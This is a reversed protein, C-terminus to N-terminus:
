PKIEFEASILTKGDAVMSVSWKGPVLEDPTDFSWVVNCAYPDNCRDRFTHPTRIETQPPKGAERIGPAAPRWVAELLQMDPAGFRWSYSFGVDMGTRAQLTQREDDPEFGVGNAAKKYTGLWHLVPAGKEDSPMLRTVSLEVQTVLSKGDAALEFGSLSKRDFDLYWAPKGDKTCSVTPVLARSCSKIIVRYKPVGGLATCLAQAEEVARTSAILTPNASAITGERPVEVAVAIPQSSHKAILVDLQQEISAESQAQAAEVICTMLVLIAKKTM